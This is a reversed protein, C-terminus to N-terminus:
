LINHLNAGMFHLYGESYFKIVELSTKFEKVDNECLYNKMKVLEAGIEQISKHNVLYCLVSENNTWEYQMNDVLLCIRQDRIDEKNRIEEEIICCYTNVTKLAGSTIMEEAVSIGILFLLILVLMIKTFLKM